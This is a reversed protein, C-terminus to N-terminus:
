FGVGLQLRVYRPTSYGTVTGYDVRPAGSDTTGFEQFDLKDKRNLVNFVSIRFTGQFLETPIKFGVDLNLNTLWDSKFSTGRPVLQRDPLVEAPFQPNATTGTGVVRPLAPNTRISGDANVNCFNGEAGYAYGYDFSEGSNILAPSSISNAVRGICGFRRPSAIQVNAGLNLWEFPSYSGYLKILHRRDTPLYGYSGLTLSPFDFSTTLGSDTQGNDSKVGGEINGKTKAYTYNGGLSWVGDFEREATLTIAKYTRRAAPYGLQDATLTVTERETQGPLPQNLVVDVDTGPNFLIYQTSGTFIEECGDIGNAQCYNIIGQDIAADELSAKLKRYTGYVGVKIREGIRREAGIIYEDVSQNKLNLAIASETPTVSGDNLITCSLTGTDPCAVAGDFLIPAGLNPTNDGNVGNLLNYATYDLEAGGLRINTNSAIPLFYRGFSGYVKTKGDGFPDGTFGLRPAWNDGSDYYVDGEVNKNNFRDDRLGLQLSIRNDFLSWSDQIYFAENRGKFTGGNVFTRRSAYQTGAPVGYPDGVGGTFYTYAANGTYSILAESTLNERDYGGRVHHSGFANFYLDVDGRYFERTDRNTTLGNVPNGISVATGGRQDSIFPYDNRSSGAIDRNHYKGYAASVTLWQTFTGTYRGVYNEGGYSLVQQGALPGDRNNAEDYSDATGSLGYTNNVQTGSTNFYTFELRQGDFPLFDVKGGYFPSSTEVYTNNTGQFRVLKGVDERTACDATYPPLGTCRIATRGANNSTVNRFNYLGYFFLKDKIIPGSLQFITDIRESRDYDNDAFLTNPADDRLDDPQWNFLVSGHFENTGSKTTANVFGGTTRGFEAQYGGIKTEVTQYFDFPVTVSGLGERFETINLGNIYYANESVSSGALSSLDGFATDGLATGPALQIISNLDRGVPVRTALEGVDIVAGVTTREFDAVRVRRGTVVIADGEANETAVGAAGAAALQFENGANNQDLVVANDTFASFGPATIAYTYPGPPLQQIRYNGGNDTTVTRTFGQENSTVAVTAGPIGKGSADTVRGSATVNTYDQAFAAATPIVTTAVGAALLALASLASPRRFRQTHNINHM